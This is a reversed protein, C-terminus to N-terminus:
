QGCSAGFCSAGHRLRSTDFTEDIPNFAWVTSQVHGTSNTQADPHCPPMLVHIFDTPRYPDSKGATLVIARMCHSAHGGSQHCLCWSGVARQLPSPVQAEPLALRLCRTHLHPSRSTHKLTDIRSALSVGVVLAGIAVGLSVLMVFGLGLAATSVTLGHATGNKETNAQSIDITVEKTSADPSPMQDTTNQNPM